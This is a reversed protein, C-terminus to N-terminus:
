TPPCVTFNCGFPPLITVVAVIGTEFAYPYSVIYYGDDGSNDMKWSDGGGLSGFSVVARLQPWLFPLGKATCHYKRVLRQLSSPSSVTLVSRSVQSIIHNSFHLSKVVEYGTASVIPFPGLHIRMPSWNSNYKERLLIMLSLFAFSILALSANFIISRHVIIVM